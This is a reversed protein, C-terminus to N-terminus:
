EKAPRISVEGSNVEKHRGDATKVMLGGGPTIDYAYAQMEEKGRIVTVDKGVTICYKKYEEISFEGGKYLRELHNLVAAGLKCRDVNMGTEIMISTAVDRIDKEFSRKKNNANIGIGVICCFDNNIEGIVECLIGCLKKGKYQLDNPWKIDCELGCVQLIARRVAMAAYLSLVPVQGYPLDPTFLVSMYIGDTDPSHWVRGMRGRGDTQCAAFVATGEEIRLNCLSRVYLNTSDVMNIVIIRKWFKTNETYYEIAAGCLVDPIETLAYGKGAVAEIGFGEERLNSIYKWVASRTVGSHECLYEGSVYGGHNEMLCKIIYDKM